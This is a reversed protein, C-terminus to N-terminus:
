IPSTTENLHEYVNKLIDTQFFLDKKSMMGINKFNSIELNELKERLSEIQHSMNVTTMPYGGDAFEVASFIVDNKDTVNMEELESLVKKLIQEQNLSDDKLIVEVSLKFFGDAYSSPCFSSPCSLRHSIFGHGFCYVYFMDFVNPKNKLAFNVIATKLPKDWGSFDVKQKLVQASAILGATCYVNQINQVTNNEGNKSVINLSKIQGSSIEINDIQSQTAIKVGLSKLNKEFVDMLGQLGYQKPYFSKKNPLLHNPLLLQDTYAIRSRIYSSVMLSDMTGQDFMILRELPLIKAVFPDLERASRGYVKALVPAIAKQTIAVGFRDNFYDEANNHTNNQSHPNAFFSEVLESYVEPSYSRLDLYSSNKQVVGNFYSGGFDRKHGVNYIWQDAPLADHIFNDVEPVGTEYVTHIGIDFYGYTKYNFSKLLGGISAARDVLYIEENPKQKKLTHAAFIGAIGAGIIVTSM